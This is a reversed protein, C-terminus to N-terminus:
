LSGNKFVSIKLLITQMVSSMEISTNLIGVTENTNNIEFNNQFNTIVNNKRYFDCIENAVKEVISKINNNETILIWQFQHMAKYLSLELEILGERNHVYKLVSNDRLSTKENYMYYLNDYGTLCTIGFNDINKLDDPSFMTEIDSILPIRNYVGAVIDWSKSTINNYKRLFMNGIISSPPVLTRRGNEFIYLWPMVYMVYSSNYLSYSTGINNIRDGGTILKNTDFAGNTTYKTNDNKFDKLQPCNLIGFAFKKHECLQALQKKSEIELGGGFSDILYRWEYKDSILAQGMKSNISVLDLLKSLQEPTNNPLHHEKVKFGSLVKFDATEIWSYIPKFLDTQLFTDINKIKVKADTSVEIETENIRQINIIRTWPRDGSSLLFLNNKVIDKYRDYSIIIKNDEIVRIIEITKAWVSNSDKYKLQEYLVEPKGNWLEIRASTSKQKNNNTYLNIVFPYEADYLEIEAVEEYNVSKGVVIATKTNYSITNIFTFMGDNLQTGSIIIKKNNYLSVNSTDDLIILNQNLLSDYYFIVNKENSLNWFFPDGSNLEGRLYAEKIFSEYGIIGTDSVVISEATNEWNNNKTLFENDKVYYSLETINSIDATTDKAYINILKDNNDNLQEIYQIVQKNNLVDFTLSQNQKLNLSLWYWIHFIRMKQYTDLININYFKLTHVYNLSSPIIEIEDNTYQIFGDKNVTVPNLVSSYNGFEDLILEYYAILIENKSDILPLILPTNLNTLKSIEFRIGKETLIILYSVHTNLTLINYLELYDSVNNISVLKGNLVGYADDYYEFPKVELSSTSSLIFEKMKIGYVYGESYIHTRGDNNILYNGFSNNPSDLRQENLVYFDSTYKKYSLFNVNPNKDLSLYEGLLDVKDTKEETEIIDINYSCFIGTENVDNNIVSEIYMDNGNIDAFYPILSCNYRKILTVQPLALFDNIKAIIVGEKTFYDRYTNSLENYNDWKGKIFIVEVIYDSIYDKPHLYSPQKNNYYDEVSINFNGINSKLLLISVDTDKQNVFNLANNNPIANAINLFDNTDRRWFGDNTNYFSKVNNSKSPTNSYNTSTSINIWEYKDNEDEIRLNLCIVPSEKLMEKVTRHFYSQKKELSYDHKGYIEEFNEPSICLVPLNPVGVKSCGIVLSFRNLNNTVNYISYDHESIYVGVNNRVVLDLFEINKM